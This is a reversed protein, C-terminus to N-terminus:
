FLNKGAVTGGLNRTVNMARHSLLSQRAGLSCLTSFRSSSHQFLLHLVKTSRPDCGAFGPERARVQPGPERGRHALTRLCRKGVPIGQNGGTVVLIRAQSTSLPRHCYVFHSERSRRFSSNTGHIKALSRSPERANGKRTQAATRGKGRCGMGESGGSSTTETPAVQGRRPRVGYASDV